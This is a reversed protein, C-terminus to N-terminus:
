AKEDTSRESKPDKKKRKEKKGDKTKSGKTTKSKSDCSSSRSKNTEKNSSSSSINAKNNSDEEDQCELMEMNQLIWEIAPQVDNNNQQLAKEAWSEKFGMSAVRQILPALDVKPPAPKQSSGM